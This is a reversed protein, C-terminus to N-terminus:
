NVKRLNFGISLGAQWGYKNFSTYLNIPINLYGSNFTKGVAVVWGTAIKTDGRRDMRTVINYPNPTLNGTVPDYQLWESELQWKGTGENFFSKAEKQVGFSPGFAFELGTKGSRFGNMLVFKPNFLQQEPGSLIFLGEILAHFDGASLYEKEFQYGFQSVVPIADWGGEYEPASLRDAMEGMIFAVGVRPGNNRIDIQPTKPPQQYYILTKLIEQNSKIDLMENLTLQMMAQIESPVKVFEKVTTRDYKGTHVDLIKLSIVIKKGLHEISGSIMKDVNISKGVELLCERGYCSALNIKNKKGMELIDHKDLIKFKKTKVLEIRLLSGAIEPSITTINSHISLVAATETPATEDQASGVIVIFTMILSM